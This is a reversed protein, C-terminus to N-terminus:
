FRNMLIQNLNLARYVGRLGLVILKQFLQVQGRQRSRTRDLAPLPQESSANSSTSAATASSFNESIGFGSARLCTALFSSACDPRFPMGAVAQGQYFRSLAFPGPFFWPSVHSGWKTAIM